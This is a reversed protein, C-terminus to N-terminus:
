PSINTVSLEGNMLKLLLTDRIEALRQNETTNSQIISLLPSVISSFTTLAEDTPIVLEYNMIQQKDGRPM